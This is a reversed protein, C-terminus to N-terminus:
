WEEDKEVIWTDCGRVSCKLGEEWIRRDSEFQGSTDEVWMEHVLTGDSLFPGESTLSWEYLAGPDNKWLRKVAHHLCYWRGTFPDVIGTLGTEEIKQMMMQETDM